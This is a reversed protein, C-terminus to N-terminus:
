RFVSDLSDFQESTLKKLGSKLNGFGRMSYNEKYGIARCTEQRSLFGTRQVKTKARWSWKITSGDAYDERASGSDEEIPSVAEVLAVIGQDGPLYRRAQNRLPRGTKSEYVFVLDGPRLDEGAQERGDPLFVWYLWKQSEDGELPPWHTTLWYNM